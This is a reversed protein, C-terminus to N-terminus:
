VKAKAGTVLASLRPRGPVVAKWWALPRHPAAGDVLPAGRAAVVDTGDM